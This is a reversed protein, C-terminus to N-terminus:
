TQGVFPLVYLDCEETSWASAVITKSNLGVLPVSLPEKSCGSSIITQFCDRGDALEWMLITGQKTNACLLKGEVDIAISVFSYDSYYLTYLCAAEPLSLVLIRHENELVVMFHSTLRLGIAPVDLHFLLSGSILDVICTHPFAGGCVMRASEGDCQVLCMLPILECHRVCFTDCDWIGYGELTIIVLSRTLPELVLVVLDNAFTLFRTLLPLERKGSLKPRKNSQIVETSDVKEEATDDVKEEYLLSCVRVAGSEHGLFVRHTSTDICMTTVDGDFHLKPTRALLEGTDLDWLLGVGKAVTVLRRLGCDLDLVQVEAHALTHILKGTFLDNIFVVSASASVLLGRQSDIRFCLINTKEPRECRQVSVPGTHWRERVRLQADYKLRWVCRRSDTFDLPLEPWADTLSRASFTAKYVREWLQDMRMLADYWGKNVRVASFTCSPALFSAVVGGLAQPLTM